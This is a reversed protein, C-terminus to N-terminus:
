TRKRQLLGGLSFSGSQRRTIKPRGFLGEISLDPSDIVAEAAFDQYIKAVAAVAGPTPAPAAAMRTALTVICAALAIARTM